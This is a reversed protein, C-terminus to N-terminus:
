PSSRGDFTITWQEVTHWHRSVMSLSNEWSSHAHGYRAELVPVAM